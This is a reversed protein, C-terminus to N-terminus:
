EVDVGGRLLQPRGRGKRYVGPHRRRIHKAMNSRSVKKQCAHCYVQRCTKVRRAEMVARLHSLGTRLVGAKWCRRRWSRRFALVESDVKTEEVVKSEPDPRSTSASRSNEIEVMNPEEVELTKLGNRCDSVANGMQVHETKGQDTAVIETVGTLTERRAPPCSEVRKPEEVELTKLGNTCDSAANGIQVRETKAQGGTATETVGTLTERRAPPVIGGIDAWRARLYSPYEVRRLMAGCLAQALVAESM